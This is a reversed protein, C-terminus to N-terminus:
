ISLYLIIISFILIIIIIKQIKNKNKYYKISKNIKIEKYESIFKNYDYQKKNLQKNINNHIKFLWKVFIENNDLYLYIPLKNLEETFIKKYKLSPLINPLLYFFDTYLKKQHNTPNNTYNFTISHLFNWTISEWKSIEM